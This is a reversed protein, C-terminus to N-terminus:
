LVEIEDSYVSILDEKIGWDKALESSEFRVTYARIFGECTIIQEDLENELPWYRQPGTLVKGMDDIGDRLVSFEIKSGLVVGIRNPYARVKTGKKFEVPIINELRNTEKNVFVQIKKEYEEDLASQNESYEKLTRSYESAFDSSIIKLKM